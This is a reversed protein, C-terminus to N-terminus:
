LYGSPWSPQILARPPEPALAGGSAARGFRPHPLSITPPMEIPHKHSPADRHFCLSVLPITSDSLCVFLCVTEPSPGPTWRSPTPTHTHIHPIHASRAAPKHKYM